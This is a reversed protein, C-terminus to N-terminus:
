VVRFPPLMVIVPVVVLPTTRGALVVRAGNCNPAPAAFLVAVTPSM